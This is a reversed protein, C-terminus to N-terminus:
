WRPLEDRTIVWPDNLLGSLNEHRGLAWVYEWAQFFSIRPYYARIDRILNGYDYKVTDWGAGSAPMPGFEFLGLPKGTAVLADYEGYVNLQLPDEGLRMYKDLGVLDVYQDGPYYEMVSPDWETYGVNPSYAWLLNNLGRENTFYDFMQRWLAVYSEPKQRGWWAWGGNMEHFPRWIVIVGADRLQQLGDAIDGLLVMWHDHVPTGPTVLEMVDRTDYPDATDTNEWDTSSGGTWPNPAHWSVNVLSGARWQEILYANPEAFNHERTMDWQAYDMGTFAPWLKAQDYVAQLQEEATQRSTGDGYAGFQGSIVRNDPRDALSYIYALLNQAAPLASHNATIAPQDSTVESPPSVPQVGALPRIVSSHIFATQDGLAIVFWNSDGNVPSGVVARLVSVPAGPNLVTVVSADLDAASRVRAPIAGVVHYNPDATLGNSDQAAGPVAFVISLCLLFAALPFRVLLGPKLQNSM